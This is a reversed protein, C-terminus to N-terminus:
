HGRDIQFKNICPLLYPSIVGWIYVDLKRANTLSTYKQCRQWFDPAKLHMSMDSDWNYTM